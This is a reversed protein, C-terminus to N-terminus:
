GNEPDGAPAARPPVGLVLNTVGGIALGLGAGCVVDLPAHAGVYVRAVMVLVAAVWPVLKWRGPLYPAVVAALATVLVAHGSVFSEGRSSVDGRLTVDPGISTAPRQRSVVLKVVRELALKGVTAALAAVALRFRRGMAAGLAVAPGM